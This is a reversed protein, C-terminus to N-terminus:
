SNICCTNWTTLESFTSIYEALSWAISPYTAGRRHTIRYYKNMWPLM